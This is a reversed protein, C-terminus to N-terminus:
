PGVTIHENLCMQVLKSKDVDTLKAFFAKAKGANQSRCSAMYAMRVLQYSGKCKIAAEFSALAQAYLGTSFQDRAKAESTAADCGAPPNDPKTTNPDPPKTTDGGGAVADKCRMGRLADAADTSQAAAQKVLVEFDKCAHSKVMAAGRGVFDDVLPKEKAALKNKAEVKYVSDDDIKALIDRAENYSKNSLSTELRGLLADNAQERQARQKLESVV